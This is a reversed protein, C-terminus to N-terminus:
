FALFGYYGSTNRYAGRQLEGALVIGQLIAAVDLIGDVILNLILMCVQFAYDNAFFRAPLVFMMHSRQGERLQHCRCFIGAVHNGMQWIMWAAGM